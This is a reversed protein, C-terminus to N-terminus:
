TRVRQMLTRLAEQLVEILKDPHRGGAQAFDARGGGGGGLMQALPRIIEHAPLRDALARHVGVVLFAKQGTRGGLIAITREQSRLQDAIARLDEIPVDEYGRVVIRVGNTQEERRFITATTEGQLQKRRLQELERQLQRNRELLAHLRDILEKESSKVIQLAKTILDRQRQMYQVAYPGALAEIRRVGAGVSQERTIIFPGVWGTHHVHTGGCLEKSFDAIQIVRVIDPYKEGFFALAGRRLAEDIPMFKEEVPYDEYVKSAVMYELEEIDQLSLPAFHTFDFRLRGPEVLSGTQKVHTGLRERLAWHILHTATHHQMTTWRRNRPVEMRVTDGVRLVGERVIVHHVTLKHFYIKTDVVEVQAHPTHMVGRDGVQGGSEGYFVTEDLIVEGREGARLERVSRKEPTLIALVRADEWQLHTYGLFRTSYRQSLERYVEMHEFVEEGKWARRAREQQARMEARFGEMDVQYGEERAIEEVLDVPVGYTDYLQFVERGPLVRDETHAAFVDRLHALGTELVRFFREEEAMCAHRVLERGMELEPYVDRMFDIVFLAFKYMYPEHREFVQGYRLARRIIKRMVYGRGENSPFVGESLVFAIARAHDAMVRIAMDRAPDGSPYNVQFENAIVEIIPMFLDTHYNDFVGQLISAMRELGMGTDVSPNPLPVLTGDEQRNYQMFVLNWFELFRGCDCGPACEPRGCGVDPGLDYHLETCPGSPGTDGMAWFNDKEGLRAIRYEPLGVNRHWITFAEDDTEFVSVWIREPPIKFVETVLEWAWEIAEQKFYDGFSFNGLMEFFTHHRPTHGVNELDNHKGGARMCKQCSTARRYPRTEIGLFVDKFQNMGANTFLLTPDGAPVLPSSPVRQHERAEFFRLFQERIDRSQM